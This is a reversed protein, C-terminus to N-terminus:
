AAIYYVSMGTVRAQEGLQVVVKGDAGPIITVVKDVISATSGSTYVATSYKEASNKDTPYEFILEIKKISIAGVPAITVISNKYWRSHGSSAAFNAGGNRNVQVTATSGTYTKIDKDGAWTSDLMGKTFDYNSDVIASAAGAEKTEVLVTTNGHVTGTYTGETAEVTKGNVSVSEVEKGEAVSVTFTFNSGNVGSSASLSVTADSSSASAVSITSTGRNNADLEVYTTDKTAFEITGYYNKIYGHIAVEDNQDPNAVGSAKNCTYVMIENADDKLYFTKIYSDSYDPQNKVIGKVYVQQATWSDSSSCELSALALAETVTLPAELTGYNTTTSGGGENGSGPAAELLEVTGGALTPTVIDDKVFKKLYGAVKVKAGAVITKSVAESCAAKFVTIVDTADASAGVLFSMTGSDWGYTVKTVYAEIVYKEKTTAGDELGNILTIADAVSIPTPAAEVEGAELVEVSEIAGTEYAYKGATSSSVYHKITCTVKVKADITCQDKNEGAYGYVQFHTAKDYTAAGKTDSMYFSTSDKDVIYGTVVYKDVSTSNDSLAKCAEIAGAVNVEHTQSEIKDGTCSIFYGEKTEPTNGNYNYITAYALATGGVWIDDETVKQADEGKKVRYVIFSPDSGSAKLKYSVNGYSSPADTFSEIVGQIYFKMATPTEGVAKAVKVADANDLPDSEEGTHVTGYLIKADRKEGVTVTVSDSEDGYTVTITATGASKAILQLRQVSVVEPNSSEVKITGDDLLDNIDDFEPDGVLQVRRNDGEGAHWEATLADKNTITVSKTDLVSIESSPKECASLAIGGFSMLAVLTIPLISRKKM